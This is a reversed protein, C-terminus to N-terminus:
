SGPTVAVLLAVGFELVAAAAVGALVARGRWATRRAMWLGVAVGTATSVGCAWVLASEGTGSGVWVVWMILLSAGLAYL